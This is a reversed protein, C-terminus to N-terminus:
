RKEFQVEPYTSSSGQLLDSDMNKLYRDFFAVLYANTIELGRNPQISGIYGAQRFLIRFPPLWRLSLDSFNFHGTGLISLYYGDAKSNIFSEHMTACDKGCADETMFMFPTRLTGNAQYSFLTGDLDAGAKCRTDLKCVSAATAGGFSHGFLGIHALDLKNYFLGSRDANLSKLQNM